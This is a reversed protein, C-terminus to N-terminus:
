ASRAWSGHGGHCGRGAAYERAAEGRRIPIRCREAHGGDGPRRLGLVKCAAPPLVAGAGFWDGTPARRRREDCSWRARCTRTCPASTAIRAPSRSPSPSPTMPTWRRHGCCARIMRVSLRTRFTTGTPGSSAPEPRSPSCRRRSPSITSRSRRKGETAQSGRRGPHGGGDARQPARRGPRRRIGSTVGLLLGRRRMCPSRHM